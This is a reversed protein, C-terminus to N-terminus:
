ALPNIRKETGIDTEQGHGPFALTQEPLTLLRDRVSHVMDRVSSTPLDVRGYSGYFLTDGCFLVDEDEFYYCAGGATHGPTAIIKIDFGAVNIIKGDDLLIDPKVTCATYWSASLNKTPDMLLDAEARMCYVPIGYYARVEDTALIHDYHGHTLFIAVPKMGKRTCRDIILDAEDATDIIITEMTDRRCVFYCNTPMMGLAACELLMNKM